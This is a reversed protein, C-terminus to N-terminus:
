TEGRSLSGRELFSRASIIERRKAPTKDPIEALARSCVLMILSSGGDSIADEILPM